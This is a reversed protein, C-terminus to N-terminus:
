KKYPTEAFGNEINQRAEQWLKRIGNRLENRMRVAKDSFQLAQAKRRLWEIDQPSYHLREMQMIGSFVGQQDLNESLLEAWLTARHKRSQKM